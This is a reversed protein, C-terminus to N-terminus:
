PHAREQPHLLAYEETVGRYFIAVLDQAREASNLGKERTALALAARADGYASIAAHLASPLPPATYGAM